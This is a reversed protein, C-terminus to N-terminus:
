VHARGIQARWSVDSDTDIWLAWLEVAFTLTALFVVLRGLDVYQLQELLRTGPMALLSALGCGGTTALIRVQTELVAALPVAFLVAFGGFLITIASVSFLVVLPSLGTADGLVKPLVIYDELLRVALVCLGAYLATHWSVTLGVAIALAGAALPGIVPVIEVLGAFAGILLWYPLGIAKFLFSLATGVLLILLCEGRVFAGLKLDILNWTDRMVKRKPRPLLSAVFDVTRDREFIWYAATAFTFFIGILIEFAKLGTTVSAHVLKSARPLHQLRKQIAVLITHKIGHSTRTAHRLESAKTPIGNTGLASEVQSLARPVALWLLLAVLGFLGVYHILVGVGRPVHWQRLLEVGPRMAAAITIGLFVLAIVVKLKWLALAGAVMAIVVLTAVAARKATEGMAGPNRGTEAFGGVGTFASPSSRIRTSSRRWPTTSTPENRRANASAPGPVKMSTTPQGAVTTPATSRAAAASTASRATQRQSRVRTTSVVSFSNTTCPVSRRRAAATRSVRTPGTSISCLRSPRTSPYPVIKAPSSSIVCTGRGSRKTSWSDAQFSRDIGDFGERLPELIPGTISTTSRRLRYRVAVATSPSVNRTGSPRMVPKRPGFPAPLVVVSRMRSPRTCGVEPLAVM